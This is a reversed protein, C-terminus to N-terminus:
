TFKHKLIVLYIDFSLCSDKYAFYVREFLRKQEDKEWCSVVSDKALAKREM